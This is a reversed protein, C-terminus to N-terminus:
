DRCGDRKALLQAEHCEGLIAQFHPGPQEGRAILHRGMILPTPRGSVIDNAAARELLWAGAEFEDVVIPPRGRQDASAVRVLRDIRGVRHAPRRVASDAAHVQFLEVPRQHEAVLPVVQDVLEQHNSMGALFRRTPEVGTECHGLSRIGRATVTTTAPKGFDHCLVALGVVLDEWPDGIREAAFADLCHLTHPWV